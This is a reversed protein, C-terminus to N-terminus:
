SGPNSGPLAHAPEPARRSAKAPAEGLWQRWLAAIEETQERMLKAFLQAPATMSRRAPEILVFDSHLPPDALPRVEYRGGDRDNVVLISPLIAVWDTAAVFELTGLMADLEIKRAVQVGNTVFYAEQTHRRTNRSGPMVIKLPGEGALRVPALHRGTRGAASVLMERDRAMLSTSLGVGGEFAPVIAFDLEGSRVMATLVGSYAELIRIEVGPALETFRQLVPPLAGRTFTPMLGIHLPGAGAEFDNAVKRTASDLRKLIDVCDAYYAKGAPTPTVERGSRQFLAVGLSAELQRVHQSMGSQTAGERRAAETFSGEEFVAIFSRIQRLSVM